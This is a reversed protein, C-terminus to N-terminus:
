AERYNLLVAGILVFCFPWIWAAVHRQPIALRLELWRSWGAAVALIALPLHSLEGFLEEKINSLSHTHTLLLAGGLACVAPFVLSAAPSTIRGNRVGWEFVAFAVILLIFLRHQLVEAVAFSQWFSRPGL